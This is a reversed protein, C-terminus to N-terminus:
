RKRIWPDSAFKAMNPKSCDREWNRPKKPNRCRVLTADPPVHNLLFRNHRMWWYAPWEFTWLVLSPVARKARDRAPEFSLDFAAALAIKDLDHGPANLIKVGAVAGKDNVDLMLWARTWNDDDQAADSYPPIWEVDKKPKAMVAPPLIDKMEIVEGAEASTVGVIRGPVEIFVHQLGGPMDVKYNGRADTKIIREGKPSLVHVSANAIPDGDPDTVSGRLEGPDSTIFGSISPTPDAAAQGGLALVLLFTWRM